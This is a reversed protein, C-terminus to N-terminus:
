DYPVPGVYPPRSAIQARTRKMYVLVLSDIGGEPVSLDRFINDPRRRPAAGPCHSPRHHEAYGHLSYLQDLCRRSTGAPCSRATLRLFPASPTAALTQSILSLGPSPIFTWPISAHFPQYQNKRTGSYESHCEHVEIWMQRFPETGVPILPQVIIHWLARTYHLQFAKRPAQGSPEKHQSYSVRYGCINAGDEDVFSPLKGTHSSQPSVYFASIKFDTAGEEDFNKSSYFSKFAQLMWYKSSPLYLKYKTKNEADTRCRGVDNGPVLHNVSDSISNSADLGSFNTNLERDVDPRFEDITRDKRNVQLNNTTGLFDQRLRVDSVLDKHRPKDLIVVRKISNDFTTMQMKLETHKFRPQASRKLVVINIGKSLAIDVYRSPCLLYKMKTTRFDRKLLEPCTDAFRETKITELYSTYPTLTPLFEVSESENPYLASLKRFPWGLATVINPNMKVIRKNQQERHNLRAVGSALVVADGVKTSASIALPFHNNAIIIKENKYDDKRENKEQQDIYLEPGLYSDRYLSHKTPFHYLSVFAKRCEIYKVWDDWVFLLPEETGLLMNIKGATVSIRHETVGDLGLLLKLVVIIFAMARAEYNPICTTNFKLVPVSVAFLRKVYTLLQDPLQLELIYRRVLALIDPPPVTTVAILEAMKAGIVRLSFHTPEKVIPGFILGDMGKIHYLNPFFHSVNHYSLVGETIWRILKSKVNKISVNSALSKDGDSSRADKDSFENASDSKESVAEVPKRKRPKKRRLRNKSIGHILQADKAHYHFGLQPLADKKKSFFAIRLRKLYMVWLQLVVTKLNPPAGCSILEDVLGKLIFNYGEWTTWDYDSWM